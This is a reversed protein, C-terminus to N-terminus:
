EKNKTEEEEKTRLFMSQRLNLNTQQWESSPDSWEAPQPAAFSPNRYPLPSGCGCILLGPPPLFAPSLRTRLGRIKKHHAPQWDCLPPVERM